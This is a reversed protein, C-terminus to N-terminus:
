HVQKGPAGESSVRLIEYEAQELCNYPFSLVFQKQCLLFYEALIRSKIYLLAHEWMAGIFDAAVHVSDKRLKILQNKTKEFRDSQSPQYPNAGMVGDCRQDVQAGWLFKKDAKEDYAIVTPVFPTGYRSATGPWDMIISPLESGDLGFGFAMSCSKTGFELGIAIRDVPESATYHDGLLSQGAPADTQMIKHRKTYSPWSAKTATINLKETYKIKTRIFL